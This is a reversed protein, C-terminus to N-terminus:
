NDNNTSDISNKKNKKKKLKNEAELTKKIIMRKVFNKNPKETWNELKIINKYGYKKDIYGIINKNYSIIMEITNKHIEEFIIHHSGESLIMLYINILKKNEIILNKVFIIKLNNIEGSSNKLKIESPNNEELNSLESIESSIKNEINENTLESFLEQSDFTKIEKIDKSYNLLKEINQKLNEPYNDLSHEVIEEEKKDNKIIEYFKYSSEDLILQINTNKFIIGILGNSLVYYFIDENKSEKWNTVWITFYDKMNIENIIYNNINEYKIDELEVVLDYLKENIIKECYNEYIDNNNEYKIIEEECPPTNLTSINLFEPFINKHFFDHYVIQNLSPRKRPDKVLIQNILNKAEKSVFPKDPFTFNCKIINKGVNNKDGFPLKSTLLKYMVIGLSWIDVEFSYGTESLEWIEPAMYVQTGLKEKLKQGEYLKKSLGFDAIKLELKEDLLLNNPKIDRHIIKRSHLYYLGQILQFIYNQVEIETLYKRKSLLNSLANNKCYEQIIYIYKSDEIYEKIKVIKPSDLNQQITIESKALYFLINKEKLKEKSMIKIAYEKNDEKSVCLYCDGFSGSGLKEGLVYKVKHDRDEIIKVEKKEM